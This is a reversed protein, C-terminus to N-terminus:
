LTEASDTKMVEQIRNTRRVGVVQGDFKVNVQSYKDWGIRAMGERYFLKLRHFKEEMHDGARGFVVSHGGWKPMLEVEGREDVRVHDVMANLLTDASIFQALRYVEDVIISDGYLDERTEVTGIALLVRATFNDSLPMREKKDSLYYSVGDSNIVRLLPQKQHIVAHVLQQQDSYVEARDIYPNKRLEQELTRFDVASLPKGTIQGGSLHNIKAVVEDTTIFNLGTEFDVTAQVGKCVLSQRKEVAATLVVVFGAVVAVSSTVLLIKLLINKIKKM